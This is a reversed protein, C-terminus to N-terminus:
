KTKIPIFRNCKFCKYNEGLKSSNVSFVDREILKEGCSPCFTNVFKSGPVNGLYVFDLGEDRAINYANELTSIPTPGVNSMEHQPHFRSFHIPTDPGLKQFIWRSLERIEDSSDNMNPILLTVIEVHIGLKKALHTSKLVPELSAGCVQEYFKNRFSKIDISMADLYPSLHKLAEPTIYGNSVYINSLGKENALKASEYTFEHWITPENYTWAISEANLALAKSVVYESTIQKTYSPSQEVSMRAIQWNQCNKCRFNCGITGLSYSLSGPKFHYLPKKEVPDLAESSVTNYILSFLRGDRNERVKCIGRSKPAIKCEHSCLHCIVNNNEVSEYHMAEKIISLAGTRENM